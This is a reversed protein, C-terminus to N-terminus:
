NMKMLYDIFQAVEPDKMLSNKKENWIMTLIDSNTSKKELKEGSTSEISIDVVDCNNNGTEGIGNNAPTKLHREASSNRKNKIKKHKTSSNVNKKIETEQQRRKVHLNLREKICDSKNSSNENIKM